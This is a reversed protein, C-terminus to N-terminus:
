GFVNYTFSYEYFKTLSRVSCLHHRYLVSCADSACVSVRARTPAPILNSEGDTDRPLPGSITPASRREALAGDCPLVLATNRRNVRPLLAAGAPPLSSLSSCRPERGVAAARRFCAHTATSLHRGLFLPFQTTRVGIAVRSIDSFSFLEGCQCLLSLQDSM